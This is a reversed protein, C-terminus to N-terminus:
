VYQFNALELPDKRKIRKYKGSTLINKAIANPHNLLRNVYKISAQTAENEVTKINVDRLMNSNKM